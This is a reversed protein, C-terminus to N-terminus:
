YQTISAMIKKRKWTFFPYRRKRGTTPRFTHIILRALRLYDEHVLAYEEGTMQKLFVALERVSTKNQRMLKQKFFFLLTLLDLGKMDMNKGRRNRERRRNLEYRPDFLALRRMREKYGSVIEHLDPKELRIGEM